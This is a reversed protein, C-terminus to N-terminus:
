AIYSLRKLPYVVGIQLRRIDASFLEGKTLSEQQKPTSCYDKRRPCVKCLADDEATVRIPTNSNGNIRLERLSLAEQVFPSEEPKSLHEPAVYGQKVLKEIAEEKTKTAMYCASTGTHHVRLPIARSEWALFGEALAAELQAKSIIQIQTMNKSQKNFQLKKM